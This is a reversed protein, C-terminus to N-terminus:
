ATVLNALAARHSDAMIQALRDDARAVGAAVDDPRGFVQVVETPDVRFHFPFEAPPVIVARRKGRPLVLKCRTFVFTAPIRPLFLDIQNLVPVGDPGVVEDSYDLHILEQDSVSAVRAFESRGADDVGCGAVFSLYHGMEGKGWLMRCVANVRPRALAEFNTM